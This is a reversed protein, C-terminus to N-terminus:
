IISSDLFVRNSDDGEKCDHLRAAPYISKLNEFVALLSKLKRHLSIINPEDKALEALWACYLKEFEALQDDSVWCIKVGLHAPVELRITQEAFRRFEIGSNAIGSEGSLILTLRFSYPDEDGCLDICNGSTCITLLPDAVTYIDGTQSGPALDKPDFLFQKAFAIIENRAKEAAAKTAFHQKRTAIVEGTPDTLNLV